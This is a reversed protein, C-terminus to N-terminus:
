TQSIARVLHRHSWISDCHTQKKPFILVKLKVQTNHLLQLLNYMWKLRLTM